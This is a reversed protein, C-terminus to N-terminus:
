SIAPSTRTIQTSSTARPRRQAQAWGFTWVNRRCRLPTRIPRFPLSLIETEHHRPPTTTAATSPARRELACPVPLSSPRNSQSPPLRRLFSSTAASVVHAFTLPHKAAEAVRLSKPTSRYRKSRPFRNIPIPPPTRGIVLARKGYLFQGAPISRPHNRPRSSTTM